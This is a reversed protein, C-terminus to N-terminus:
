PLYQVIYNILAALHDPDVFLLLCVLMTCSFLQLNLFLETVLHFTFGLLMVPYKLEEVWIFTGMSFQILMVSWTTLKRINKDCFFRANFFRQFSRDHLTYYIASGHIWSSSNSKALCARIYIICLQVQMLRLSWQPSEQFISDNNDFFLYRDVSLSLGSPSFILLFCIIRLIADGSHFIYPNRHTISLMFIFALFASFQTLFGVTLSLSSCLYITLILYASCRNRPLYSFLPFKTSAIRKVYDDYPLLADIGFWTEIERFLLIGNTTLLLGFFFRFISITSTSHPTFFFINWHNILDHLTIM